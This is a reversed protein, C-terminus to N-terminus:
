YSHLSSKSISAIDIEKANEVREFNEIEKELDNLSTSEEFDDFEVNSVNPNTIDVDNVINNEPEKNSEDNSTEKVDVKQEEVIKEKTDDVKIVPAKDSVKTKYIIDCTKEANALASIDLEDKRIIQKKPKKCLSVIFKILIILYIFTVFGIVSLVVIQGSESIDSQSVLALMVDIYICVITAIIFKARKLKKTKANTKSNLAIVRSNISTDDFSLKIGESVKDFDTLILEFEKNERVYEGTTLDYKLFIDTDLEISLTKYEKKLLKTKQLAQFRIEM